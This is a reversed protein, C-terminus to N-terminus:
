RELNRVTFIDDSLNTDFKIDDLLMRTTHNKKVDRMETEFAVWYNGVKQIKRRTLIKYLNGAKDYYEIKEPYFNDTRVYMVLKSYDSTRGERPTLNLVYHSEDKRLFEPKWKESYTLAEMDEYTFDTGAFNQNKIHSAIRRSKKFAPLYVYNVDDPLSLFGIGRIDAPETFKVLRKHTGKQYMLAERYSERGNKDILIVKAKYFQDKPAYTVEDVKKLIEDATLQAFSTNWLLSFILLVILWM